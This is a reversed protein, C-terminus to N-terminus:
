ESLSFDILSGLRLGRKEADGQPLELVYQANKPPMYTKPFDDPKVNAEIHVINKQASIWVIDIPYKMDKM